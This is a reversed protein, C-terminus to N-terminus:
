TQFPLWTERINQIDAKQYFVLVIAPLTYMHWSLNDKTNMLIKFKKSDKTNEM